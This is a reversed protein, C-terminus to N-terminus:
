QRALLRVLEAQRSIGLKGFIASLHTRVTKESISLRAAAAARGDGRAIELAVAAEGRTLGQMGAIRELHAAADAAPDAVTILAAPRDLALWTDGDRPAISSVTLRITRGDAGVLDFTGVPAEGRVVRDIGRGDTRLRDIPASTDLM